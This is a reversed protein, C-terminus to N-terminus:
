GNAIMGIADELSVARPAPLLGVAALAEGILDEPKSEGARRDRVSADRAAKSLKEGSPKRILPHHFFRPPAQRGLMRALLLQRGTSDLLDEGRIVLDIGHRMDDVVVAFQYTWNGLRDRILLDGCQREPEQEVPGLRLDEFQEVGEPLVMRLGRGRGPELGRHRCTGPYAGSRAAGGEAGDASRTRSCACAYVQHGRAVLAAVSAEYASGSDSQRFQSPGARFTVTAGVDPRFGLWDLDDLLAGEYEPRCRQRDHDEIRMLVRAGHRRGIGWVFLASAVHGLHLYGTPAPAFRTLM